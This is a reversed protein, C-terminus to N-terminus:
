KGAVLLQSGGLYVVQDPTAYELATLLAHVQGPHQYDTGLRGKVNGRV